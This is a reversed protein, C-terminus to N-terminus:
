KKSSKRRRAWGMGILGGGLLLLSSPEPVGSPASTADKMQLTDIAFDGLNTCGTACSTLSFQIKTIDAATSDLLGIFVPDGSGDSTVTQAAGLSGSVGFAQISATYQGSTDGEIYAGAGFLGSSFALSIPGTGAGAGGGANPDFAWIDTDGANMGAGSTSWSCSPNSPCVVAVLGTNDTATFNGTVGVGLGSTASFPGSLTTADAGLQSWITSDNSGLGAPTTELTIIDAFAPISPCLALILFTPVAITLRKM